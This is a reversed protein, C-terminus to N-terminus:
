GHHGGGEEESVGKDVALVHEARGLIPFDWWAELTPIFHNHTRVLRASRM